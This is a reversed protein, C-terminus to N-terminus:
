RPFLLLLFLLTLALLSFVPSLFLFPLFSLRLRRYPLALLLRRCRLALFLLTLALLSFVPSLFLFPLRFSSEHYAGDAQSLAHGPPHGVPPPEPDTGGVAQS